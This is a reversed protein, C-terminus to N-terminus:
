PKTIVGKEVAETVAEELLVELLNSFSRKQIKALKEAQKKLDTDIYTSVRIKDTAVTM